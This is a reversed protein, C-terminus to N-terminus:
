IIRMAVSAAAAATVKAAAGDCAWACVWGV